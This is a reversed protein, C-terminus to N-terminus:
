AIVIPSEDWSLDAKDKRHCQKEKSVSSTSFIYLFLHCFFPSSMRIHNEQNDGILLNSLAEIFEM